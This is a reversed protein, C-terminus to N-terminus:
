KIKQKLFDLTERACKEWSFSEARAKGKEILSQCFKEDKLLKKIKESLEVSSTANFYEAADGGVESLSSNNASIVPIGSAMAELVPIGFGAYLEPFVFIKANKYLIPLSKFSIGGTMIIDDRFESSSIREMIGEWMWAKEGAIVLKIQPFNAKIKEFSEVLIELNKRPQIAGIYLLYTKLKLNYSTLFSESKILSIEKQFIEADFGHHIVKIKNETCGQYFKLIDKKTSDSVAIIRDANKVALNAFFKLKLLDKKPFYQPFYRYALDHITVVVKMKKRRFIPINTAPMWLVDPNDMFLCLAFFTQTWFPFKPIKRIKYNTFKPPIFSPNFKGSHYIYFVDDPSLSGFIKLLSYIYVRTGDIRKADLDSAHIAIKM